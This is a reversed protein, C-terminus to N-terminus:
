ATPNTTINSDNNQLDTLAQQHIGALHILLQDQQRASVSNIGLGIPPTAVQATAEKWADQWYNPAGTSWIFPCEIGIVRCTPVLLFNHNTHPDGYLV